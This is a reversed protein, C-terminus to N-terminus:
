FRQVQSMIGLLLGWGGGGGGEGGGPVPETHSADRRSGGFWTSKGDSGM